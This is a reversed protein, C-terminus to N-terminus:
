LASEADFACPLGIIGSILLFLIKLGLADVKPM